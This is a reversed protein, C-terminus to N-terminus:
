LRSRYLKDLKDLTDSGPLMTEKNLLPAPSDRNKLLSLSMIFPNFPYISLYISLSLSLTLPLNNLSYSFLFFSDLTDSGPLM